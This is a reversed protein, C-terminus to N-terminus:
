SWFGLSYKTSFGRWLDSRQQATLASKYVVVEAIDGNFFQNVDANSAVYVASPTHSTTHAVSGLPLGSWFGSTLAGDVVLTLFAPAAGAIKSDPPIDPFTSCEYNGSGSVALDLFGTGRGDFLMKSVTGPSRNIGVVAVTWATGATLGTAANVLTDDTGDFRLAPKGGLGPVAVKYLPQKGGTAQTVDRGNGSSDAWTAVATGDAVPTIADAKLWLSLAPAGTLKDPTPGAPAYSM